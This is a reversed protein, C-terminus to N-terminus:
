IAAEIANIQTEKDMVISPYVSWDLTITAAPVVCVEYKSEVRAQCAVPTETMTSGAVGLSSFLRCM